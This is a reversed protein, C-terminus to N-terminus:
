PALRKLGAQAYANGQAAALKYLRAAERDDKRLGGRGQREATKLGSHLEPALAAPCCPLLAAPCCPLLKNVQGANHCRGFCPRYRLASHCRPQPKRALLLTASDV